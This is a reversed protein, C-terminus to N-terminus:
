RLADRLADFREQWFAKAENVADRSTLKTHQVTMTSKEPGKATFFVNVQTGDQWDVRISRDVLATRVRTVGDPLWKRRRRADSFMRYLKSVDIGFTRSKNAEYNGDRRQGIDRLGRIREYGVTVMQTWWGDLEAYTASVHRTIEGHKMRHAGVADLLAVWGAWTRGTRERIADDSVGALAPWEARPAAYADDSDGDRAVIVARAATYSEGTKKMRARILRKRDKDTTM